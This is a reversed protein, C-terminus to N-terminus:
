ALLYISGLGLALGIQKYMNLEEGYLIVGLLVIILISAIKVIPYMVSMKINKLLHLYLILLIIFIIFSLFIWMVNKTKNYQVIVPMSIGSLIISFILAFIDPTSYM